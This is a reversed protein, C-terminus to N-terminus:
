RAHISAGGARSLHCAGGQKLPPPGTLGTEGTVVSGGEDRGSQTM